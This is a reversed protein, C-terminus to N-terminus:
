NSFTLFSKNAKEAPYYYLVLIINTKSPISTSKKHDYIVINKELCSTTEPILQDNFSKLIQIKQISLDENVTLNYIAFNRNKSDYDVNNKFCNAKFRAKLDYLNNPIVNNNKLARLVDLKSKIKKLYNKQANPYQKSDIVSDIQLSGSCYSVSLKGNEDTSAFLLWKTDPVPNHYCMGHGTFINIAKTETGKYLELIDIKVNIYDKHITDQNIKLIKVEVTFESRAVQEIFYQPSCSCAFTVIPTFFLFLLYDKM